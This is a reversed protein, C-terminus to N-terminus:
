ALTFSTEAINVTISFISLVTKKLSLGRNFLRGRHLPWNEYDWIKAWIAFYINAVQM